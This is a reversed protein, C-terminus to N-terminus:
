AATLRLPTCEVLPSLFTAFPAEGLDDACHDVKAELDPDGDLADLLDVFYEICEAIAERTLM